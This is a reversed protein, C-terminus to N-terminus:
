LITETGKELFFYFSSAMIWLLFHVDFSVSQLQKSHLMIKTNMLELIQKYITIRKIYSDLDCLGLGFMEKQATHQKYRIPSSYIVTMENGLPVQPKEDAKLM